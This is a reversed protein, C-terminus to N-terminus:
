NLTNVENRLKLVANASDKVLELQDIYESIRTNAIKLDAEKMKLEIKLKHNSDEYSKANDEAQKVKADAEKMKGDNTKM